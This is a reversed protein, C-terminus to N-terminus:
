SRKQGSSKKQSNSPDQVPRQRSNDSEATRVGTSTSPTYNRAASSVSSASRLPLNMHVENGMPQLYFNDGRDQAEAQRRQEHVEHTAQATAVGISTATGISNAVQSLRPNSEATAGSLNNAVSGGIQFADAAAQVTDFQDRGQSYGAYLNTGLSYSAQLGQVTGSAINAWKEAQPGGVYKATGAAITPGANVAAKGIARGYTKLVDKVGAASSTAWQQARQSFREVRGHNQVYFEGAEVDYVGRRASAPPAPADEPVSQRSERFRGQSDRRVASYSSSYSGTSDLSEPSSERAEQVQASSSPADYSAAVSKGRLASRVGREDNAVWANRSESYRAIQGEASQVYYNKTRTDYIGHTAGAPPVPADDPVEQNTSHTKERGIKVAYYDFDSEEM